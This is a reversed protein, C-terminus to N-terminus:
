KQYKTLSSIEEKSLLRWEGQKLSPDLMLPGFSIRELSTIETGAAKFMRKIQHFKGESIKISGSLRDSMSIVAPKTIYGGIDIGAELRRIEAEPIPSSLTYRYEKVVHKSPSLLKHALPGDNTLLLLGTTDIDLRGCPFINMRSYKQPLLTLVSRPDGDTTCVTSKPKNMIIYTYKEWVVTEGCLTVIATEPEIHVSPDRVVVSNVTIDGHKAYRATDRRTSVGAESLYKDLRM